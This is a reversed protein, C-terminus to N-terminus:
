GNKQSYLPKLSHLDCVLFQLLQTPVVHTASWLGGGGGSPIFGRSCAMADQPFRLSVAVLVAVMRTTRFHCSMACQSQMERINLMNEHNKTM